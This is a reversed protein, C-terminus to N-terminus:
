RPGRSVGRLQARTREPMQAEVVVSLDDEDTAIDIREFGARRCMRKIKPPLDHSVELLLWGGPKLWRPAGYIAVRMLSLGDDSQDTLTELPEFERVETPLDGIEEQPVYPIHGTIIDVSGHLREPLAGYMDGERFSLNQLGLRRANRRGQALGERSIDTAWIEARGVDDAIALAIPGSGTCVDVVIPNRRKRLLRVARAVTLESSPRPVFAGPEVQLQLGWFIIHGTLFPFPEGGARRAVYALYREGRRPPVLDDTDLEDEDIELVHALLERAESANDHDEFIHTSDTLVREALKLYDGVTVPQSM